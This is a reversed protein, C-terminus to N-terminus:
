PSGTREDPTRPAGTRPAETELADTFAVFLRSVAAAFGALEAAGAFEGGAHANNAALFGLLVGANHGADPRDDVTDAGDVVVRATM